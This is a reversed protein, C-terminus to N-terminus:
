GYVSVPASATIHIGKREITNSTQLEATTPVPVQTVAGPSVSFTQSFSLGPIGVTGTAAQEGSIFFSLTTPLGIYNGPFTEWFDTGRSDYTPPEAAAGPAALPVAAVASALAAGALVALSRLRSTSRM